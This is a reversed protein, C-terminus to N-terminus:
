HRNSEAICQNSRGPRNWELAMSLLAAAHRRGARCLHCQKGSFHHCEYALIVLNASTSEVAGFANSAVMTYSGRSDWVVNSLTLSKNTAGSLDVGNHRWQFRIPEAGSADAAFTVNTYPFVTQGKPHLHFLVFTPSRGQRPPSFMSTNGDLDTAAATIYSKL